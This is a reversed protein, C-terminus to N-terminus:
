LILIIKIDRTSIMLINGSHFDGHIYNQHIYDLNDSISCLIKIKQKWDLLKFNTALYQRLDGKDAYEFVMLYENNVTNYTVGYIEIGYKDVNYRNLQCEYHIKFENFFDSSINLIGTLSKLAVNCQVRSLLVDNNSTGIDYTRKGDIWIATYVTGFGSIKPDCSHCYFFGTNYKKCNACTGFRLYNMDTSYSKIGFSKNLDLLSEKHRGMQQNLDGRNSLTIKNNPDIELAKNLDALSEEFRRLLQYVTSRNNLITADNPDFELSRNLDALSEEYRRIYLYTGGRNNLVKANNPDFELSKNLDALTEEFKDM